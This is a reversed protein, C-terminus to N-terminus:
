LEGPKQNLKGIREDLDARAKATTEVLGTLNHTMEDLKGELEAMKQQQQQVQAGVDASDRTLLARSRELGDELEKLKAGLALHNARVEAHLAEIQRNQAQFRQEADSKTMYCAGLLWSCALAAAPLKLGSRRLKADARHQM